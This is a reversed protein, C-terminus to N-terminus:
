KEGKEKDKCQTCTVDIQKTTIVKGDAQSVTVDISGPQSTLERTIEVKIKSGSAKDDAANTSDDPRWALYKGNAEVKAVSKGKDIDVDVWVSDYQKLSIPQPKAEKKEPFDPIDLRYATGNPALLVVHAPMKDVTAAVTYDLDLDCLTQGPSCSATQSDKVAPKKSKSKNDTEPTKRAPPKPPHCATTKLTELVDGAVLHWCLGHDTNEPANSFGVGNVRSIVISKESVRTVQFALAPDYLPVTATWKDSRYFPWLVKVVGGGHTIASDPVNAEIIVRHNVPDTALDYPLKLATGNVSVIPSEPLALGNTTVQPLQEVALQRENKAKAQAQDLTDKLSQLNPAQASAAEQLNRAASVLEARTQVNLKQELRIEIRRYGALSPHLQAGEIEIGNPALGEPSASARILPVSTGYRGIIAGPGNTLADLTTTLDFGQNSKLILGDAPTTYTKDGLVVETNSFFNNGDASVVVTNTGTPRWAVTSVTPRLDDQYIATSEVQTDGYQVNNEYGENSFIQPRAQNLSLRYWYERARNAQRKDFSTMTSRDYKKWYTRVSTTFTPECEAGGTGTCDKTPLAVISFMQRLGPSISRRGLVPRFMWGFVLQNDHGTMREYSLTDTDRYLYFIQGRKRASFGVQFASVVAAGGFANSKTSLAAANYTKEQPMLAVLSLNNKDPATLTIEVVAVADNARRPPDITINFGLVAQLRAKNDGNAAPLLRDSLSRELIMRLNFIQYTLNVQDNLLDSASAGFTPNFGSPLGPLTDLAPAQPTFSARNTDTKRELTNPLPNGNADVNGTKLDTSVDRSATPLSTVSLNTSVEQTSLGQFNTLANLVSKQDIYAKQQTELTQNLAELMLTLSRNDFVKPSGVSIGNCYTQGAPGTCMKSQQAMVELSSLFVLIALFHAATRM